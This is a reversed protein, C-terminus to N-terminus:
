LILVDLAQSMAYADPALASLDWGWWQFYLHQGGLSPNSPIPMPVFGVGNGPGSGSAVVPFLFWNNKSVSLSCGPFWTGLDIPPSHPAFGMVLVLFAGGFAETLRIRFAPNEYSSPTGGFTDIKPVVYSSGACGSGFLSSGPPIGAVSLAVVKGVLPAGAILDPIGDGNLDGAAAVAEFPAGLPGLDNAHVRFVEGGTAGSYARLEGGSNWDGALLIDSRNDGDVDGLGVVAFLGLGSIVPITFLTAGNAGSFARAYGGAGVILDHVSDGNM